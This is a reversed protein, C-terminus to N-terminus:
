DHVGFQCSKDIHDMRKRKGVYKIFLNIQGHNRLLKTRRKVDFVFFVRFQTKLSELILHLSFAMNKNLM